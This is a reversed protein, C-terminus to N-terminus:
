RRVTFSLKKVGQVVYDTEMQREDVITGLLKVFNDDGKNASIVTMKSPPLGPFFEGEFYFGEEERMVQAYLKSNPRLLNILRVMQQIDRLKMTGKVLENEQQTIAEGNGVTIKYTGSQLTPPIHYDQELFLTKGRRPKLQIVLKFSEGPRVETRTLWVRELEAIRQEEIFDLTIKLGTINVPAFENNSLFFYVAAPLGGAQALVNFGTYFNDIKIDEYGDLSLTGSLAVSMEGYQKQTALLSNSIVMDILVPTLLLDRALRYKYESVSSGKHKVEVEVPVTKAQRGLLGYAASARDQIFAGVVQGSNTIHFSGQLSPFVTVVEARAMPWEVPGLQYIPHGFAFVTDGQVLTVTGSSGLSMDGGIMEIMVPMGAQLPQEPLTIGSGSSAAAALEMGVQRFFPGFREAVAPELGTHNLTLMMYQGEARQPAPMEGTGGPIERGLREALRRVEESGGWIYYYDLSVRPEGRGGYQVGLMNGIPTVGAIPETAFWGIRTALAGVLKGDVYFPSGSMGNAVGQSKIQEGTLKVLVVDMGPGYYNPLVGLVEASIEEVKTGRLTTKVVGQMGPRLQDVSMTEMQAGAVVASILVLVAVIRYTTEPM